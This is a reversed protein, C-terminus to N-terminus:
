VPMPVFRDRVRMRVIGIQVVAMGVISDTRVLVHFLM